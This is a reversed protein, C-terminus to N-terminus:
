KLFIMLKHVNGKKECTIVVKFFSSPLFQKIFINHVTMEVMIDIRTDECLSDDM